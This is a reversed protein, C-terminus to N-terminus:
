NCIHRDGRLDVSCADLCGEVVPFACLFEDPVQRSLMDNTLSLFGLGGNEARSAEKYGLAVPFVDSKHDVVRFDVFKDPPWGMGERRPGIEKSTNRM